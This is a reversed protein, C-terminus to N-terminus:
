GGAARLPVPDTGTQEDIVRDRQYRLVGPIAPLRDIFIGFYNPMKDAARLVAPVIPLGSLRDPRAMSPAYPVIEAASVHEAMPHAARNNLAQYEPYRIEGLDVIQGARAEFRVTGMCMCFGANANGGRTVPGYFAYSGPPVAILFTADDGTRTFQPGRQVGIFNDAEPPAFAFTEDTVPTPREMRLPCSAEARACSEAWRRYSVLAREYREQARTLATAREALWATQEEPTVERLFQVERRDNARFFIYAKQPDLTVAEKQNFQDRAHAAPVFQAAAVLLATALISWVRM